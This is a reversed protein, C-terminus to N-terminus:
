KLAKKAEAIFDKANTIAGDIRFLQKGDKDLFVFTPFSDIKYKKAFEEAAVESDYLKANLFNNNFFDGVEKKPFVKKEMVKCWYCWTATVEVMIVKNEKASSESLQAWNFKEFKIQSWTLNAYSVLM